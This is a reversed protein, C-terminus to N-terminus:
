TARKGLARMLQHFNKDASKMSFRAVGIMNGVIGFIGLILQFVVVTSLFIVQLLIVFELKKIALSIWPGCLQKRVLVQATHM